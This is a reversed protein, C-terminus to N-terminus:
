LGLDAADIPEIGHERMAREVEEITQEIVVVRTHKKSNAPIMHWRGADHDTLELMEETAELYAPRKERNRWDEATLKWSKLPKRARREFRRLQEDDTIHLFFKVILAGERCLGTEFARIEEYGRRWQEDTAFGEVREALVRGYWSRDFITMGGWGPLPPVFRALYHHRKEDESPAAFHAVRVHRPDLDAVMRKIASGKGSADWGEFVVCLPPGLRGDGLKGGLQLRRAALLSQARPLRREYEENSLKVSMDLQDLRGV